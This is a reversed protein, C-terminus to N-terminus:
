GENSNEGIALSSIGRHVLRGLVVSRYEASSRVDDIPVTEQRAALSALRSGDTVSRGLASKEAGVLRQPTAAVSGAALRLHSLVGSEVRGCGALVVKSIAQARRTGVKFFWQISGPLTRPIRFGSILEGGELATQRYGTHFEQYPLEREGDVGRIVVIADLVLLVPLSDGAPSANAANGGITARNQIQWGGVESAATALAPFLEQVQRNERLETFTTLAGIWLGRSTSQVGQIEEILSLDVYRARSALSGNVMLDTGGAIPRLDPDDALRQCAEDLTRCGCIM